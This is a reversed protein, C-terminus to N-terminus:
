VQERNQFLHNRKIRKREQRRQKYLPLPRPPQENLDYEQHASNREHQVQQEQLKHKQNQYHVPQREKYYEHQHQKHTDNLIVIQDQSHEVITKTTKDKQHPWKQPSITIHTQVIPEYYTTIIANRDRRRLLINSTSPGVHTADRELKRPVSVSSDDSSSSSYITCGEDNSGTNMNEDSCVYRIKRDAFTPISSQRNFRKIGLTRSQHHRWSAIFELKGKTKILNTLREKTFYESRISIFWPPQPLIYVPPLPLPLNRVSSKECELEYMGDISGFYLLEDLNYYLRTRDITAAYAIKPLPNGNTYITAATTISKIRSRCLIHLQTNPKVTVLLHRLYKIQMSEVTAAIPLLHQWKHNTAINMATIMSFDKNENQRMMIKMMKIHTGELKQLQVPQYDWAACGYTANPLVTINYVLLKQWLSVHPNLFMSSKYKNFADWMAHQRIGIERDLNGNSTIRSGLYKFETTLKLLIKTGDSQTLHIPRHYPHPQPLYDPLMIETKTCSIIQGFANATTSFIDIMSQLQEASAAFLVLDDAFLAATLRKNATMFTAADISHQDFIIADPNYTAQLGLCQTDYEKDVYQMIAGM